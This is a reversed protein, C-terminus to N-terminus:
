RFVFFAVVAAALTAAAIFVYPRVGAPKPSRAKEVAQAEIREEVSAVLQERDLEEEIGLAVSLDRSCEDIFAADIRHADASYGCLLAHDCVINILRPYGKTLQAVRDTAEPTFVRNKAGAVALRHEIYRRTEEASLPELYHHVSIHKLVDRNEASMLLQNFELQGVFFVKLLKRGALKLESLAVTELLIERNLRQAEDIILLVKKYDSFAELLFRKFGSLFEERSQFRRGMRFEAALVNFFDLGSLDPDHVTVFIAAVDDIKVLRKILTTKGTGIDGTLLVCGDQELIGDRLTEYARTHKESLWLFEPDPSIGFPEKGLGYHDLYVHARGETPAELVPEAFMRNRISRAKLAIKLGALPAPPM